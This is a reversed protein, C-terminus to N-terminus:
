DKDVPSGPDEGSPTAEEGDDPRRTRFVMALVPFLGIGLAMFAMNDLAVGLAVGIGVGLAVGLGWNWDNTSTASGEASRPREEADDDAM